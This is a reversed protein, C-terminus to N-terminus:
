LGGIADNVRGTVASWLLKRRTARSLGTLRIGEGRDAAEAARLIRDLHTKAM